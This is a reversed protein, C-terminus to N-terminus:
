QEGRSEVESKMREGLKLAEAKNLFTFDSIVEKGTGDEVSVYYAPIVKVKLQKSKILKNFLVQDAEEKSKVGPKRKAPIPADAEVMVSDGVKISPLKGCKTWTRVTEISLGHNDAYQRTTIYNAM